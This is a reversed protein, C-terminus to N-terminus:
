DFTYDAILEELLLRIGDDGPDIKKFDRGTLVVSEIKQVRTPSGALGCLPADVGITRGSWEEIFLGRRALEDPAAGPALESPARANKFRM